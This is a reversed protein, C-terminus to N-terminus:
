FPFLPFFSIDFDKSRCDGSTLYYGEACQACATGNKATTWGINCACKGEGCKGNVCNCGSTVNVVAPTSPQCRPGSFGAACKECSSGAFGKACSCTSSASCVGASSCPPSCTSSQLDILTLSQSIFIDNPLEEIDPVANWFVLTTNNSGVTTVAWVNNSLAFSTSAAVPTPSMPASPLQLFTPQGTYTEEDYLVLGPRQEITLNLPLFTSSSSFGPSLSLTASFASLLSLLDQPQSTTNYLGPLLQVATVNASPDNPSLTAGVLTFILSIRSVM